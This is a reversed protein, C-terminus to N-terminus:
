SSFRHRCDGARGLTRQQPWQCEPSHGTQNRISARLLVLTDGQTCSGGMIEAYSAISRAGTIRPLKGALKHPWVARNLSSTHVVTEQQMTKRISGAHQSRGSLKYHCACKSRSKIIEKDGERGGERDREKEGKGSESFNGEGYARISGAPRGKM